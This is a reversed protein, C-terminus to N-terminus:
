SALLRSIKMREDHSWDATLARFLHRSSDLLGRRRGYVWTSFCGGSRLVRTCEKFLIKPGLSNDLLGFCYVVDFVRSCLPLRRTNGLVVHVNELLKTNEFCARAMAPDSDLAVVEAGYRGAFYAWKVYGCGVGLTLSGMWDDPSAPTLRELFGEQWVWQAGDVKPGQAEPVHSTQKGLRLDPIGERIPYSWDCGRCVLTGEMVEKRWESGQVGGGGASSIKGWEAHNEVRDERVFLDRCGCDTCALWKVLAWKM